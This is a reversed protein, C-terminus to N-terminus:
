SCVCTLIMVLEHNLPLWYLHDFISMWSLNIVDFRIWYPYNPINMWKLDDNWRVYWIKMPVYEYDLLYRMYTAYSMKVHNLMMNIYRVDFLKDIWVIAASWDIM